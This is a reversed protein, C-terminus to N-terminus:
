DIIFIGRLAAGYMPDDEKTVLVGYNKSLEKSVDALLPIKINGLGGENRPTKIWAM